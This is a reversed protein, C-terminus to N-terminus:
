ALLQTDEAAVDGIQDVGNHAFRRAAAAIRPGHGEDLCWQAHRCLLALELTRGLTMAFRRAGAELRTPQTMAEQVWATAHRLAGRAAEVPRALGPDTASACCAEVEAAIAELAGGKGLARLTDLSLVNTTGEWIPLVQADALIRPLGTDEIYGAGGCAEIAESTVAVAQKGTTLKAIPVLARALREAQEDRGHELIGILQASRFALCFAGAYEAELMALTDAHLPKDALLAGFATRRRAFDRALALGRRMASVASIAPSGLAGDFYEGSRWGSRAISRRM